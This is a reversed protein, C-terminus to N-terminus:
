QADTEDDETRATEKLQRFTKSPPTGYYRRSYSDYKESILISLATATSQKKNFKSRDDSNNQPDLYRNRSPLEITLLNDGLTDWIADYLDSHRLMHDRYRMYHLDVGLKDLISILVTAPIRNKGSLYNQMSRYPIDLDRSLTRITVRKEELISRLSEALQRDDYPM